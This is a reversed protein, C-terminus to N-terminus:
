KNFMELSTEHVQLGNGLLYYDDKSNMDGPRSSFSQTLNKLGGISPAFEYVKFIRLMLSYINHTNHAAVINRGGDVLKVFGTCEKNKERKGFYANLDELDGMYTLYYFETKSLWM